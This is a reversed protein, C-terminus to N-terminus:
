DKIAMFFTQGLMRAAEPDTEAIKGYWKVLHHADPTPKLYDEIYGAEWMSPLHGNKAALSHWYLSKELTKKRHIEKEYYLEEDVFYDYIDTPLSYHLPLRMAEYHDYDVFNEPRILSSGNWHNRGALINRSSHDIDSAISFITDDDLKNGISLLWSQAEDIDVGLAEDEYFLTPGVPFRQRAKEPNRMLAIIKKVFEQKCHRYGLIIRTKSNLAAKQLNRALNTLGEFLSSTPLSPNETSHRQNLGKKGALNHGVDELAQLAELIDDELDDKFNVGLEYIPEDEIVPQTPVVGGIKYPPDVSRPTDRFFYGLYLHAVAHEFGMFEDKWEYTSFWDELYQLAKVEKGEHRRSDNLLMCALYYKAKQNGLAAAIRCWFACVLFLSSVAYQNCNLVVVGQELCRM